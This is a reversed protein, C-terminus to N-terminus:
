RDPPDNGASTRGPDSRFPRCDFPIEVFRAPNAGSIRYGNVIMTDFEETAAFACIEAFLQRVQAAGIAIRDGSAPGIRVDWLLLTRAELDVGVTGYLQVVGQPSSVEHRFSGGHWFRRGGGGSM